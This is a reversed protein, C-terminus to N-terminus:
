SGIQRAHQAPELPPHAMDIRDPTKWYEYSGEHMKVTRARNRSYGPGGGRSRVAEPSECAAGAAVVVLLLILKVKM